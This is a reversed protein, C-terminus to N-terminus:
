FLKSETFNKNQTMKQITELNEKLLPEMSPISSLLKGHMDYKSLFGM